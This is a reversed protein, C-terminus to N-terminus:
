RKICVNRSWVVGLRMCVKKRRCEDCARSVKTRKKASGDGYNSEQNSDLGGQALHQPSNMQAQSLNQMVQETRHIDQGDGIGDTM